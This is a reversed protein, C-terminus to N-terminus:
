VSDLWKVFDARTNEEVSAGGWAKTIIGNKLYIKIPVRNIGLKPALFFGDDYFLKFPFRDEVEKSSDSRKSFAAIGYFTVDKRRDVVTRLFESEMRCAGCDTSVFVIVVKGQHLLRDDVQQGSGDVLHVAPLQQGIASKTDPSVSNNRQRQSRSYFFVFSSCFLIIVGASICISWKNRTSM